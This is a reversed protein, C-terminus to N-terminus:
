AGKPKEGVEVGTTVATDTGMHIEYRVCCNGVDLEGTVHQGPQATADQPYAAIEKEVQEVMKDILWERRDSPKLFEL